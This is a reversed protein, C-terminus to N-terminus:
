IKIDEIELGEPFNEEPVEEFSVKEDDEDDLKIFDGDATLEWTENAASSNKLVREVNKSDSAFYFKEAEERSLGGQVKRSILREKLLEPEAKIFLTYDALARINTWHSDKLLLYNGELLIIEDEVSLVNHVVDHIKRDYINWDTGEQRVERLKFQLGDVDFTEPAGKIDNLLIEQGDIEIKNKKLYDADYHFGDIGLARVPSLFKDERSIRELFQALSTKGTGPPAAIYAVIKRDMMTQLEGLKQLFPKFIKEATEASFRLEERLNNIETEYTIWNKESM